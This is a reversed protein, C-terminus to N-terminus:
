QLVILQFLCSLFSFLPFLFSLSSRSCLSPLSPSSIPLPSFPLRFFLFFVLLWNDCSSYMRIVIYDADFYEQIILVLDFDYDYNSDSDNDIWTITFEFAYWLRCFYYIISYCKLKFKYLLKWLTYQKIFMMILYLTIM